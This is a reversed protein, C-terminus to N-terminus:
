KRRRERSLKQMIKRTQLMATYTLFIVGREYHKVFHQISNKIDVDINSVGIDSYRLRNAMDYARTGSTELAHRKSLQEVDVDWLWSVDRSDAISDNIIILAPLNPEVGMAVSFGAPNKVLQLIYTRDGVTIEEGRGYPPKLNGFDVKSEPYLENILAIVGSLNLANHVGPLKSRDVVMKNNKALLGIKSASIAALSYDTQPVATVKESHWNDDVPFNKALNQVYGYSITKAKTNKPTYVLRPDCANYVVLDTTNAALRMLLKATYDIEGFRDLQDRLVNTLISAKPKLIPSLKAAYAEDLELVAVDYPLRGNLKSNRVISSLIGRTMNSGSHNTFVRKGMKKLVEAVLHTTTTKGNTGTIVILGEPLKQLRNILKPDMKEAILGPLAAGHRGTRRLFWYVLKCVWITILHRM